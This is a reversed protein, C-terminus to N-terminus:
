PSVGVAEVAVTVRGVAVTVRGVAVTVRGVAPTVRPVPAPVPLPVPVAPVPAVDGPGSPSRVRHWACRRMAQGAVLAVAISNGSDTDNM